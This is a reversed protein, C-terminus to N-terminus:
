GIRWHQSQNCEITLAPTRRDAPSRDCRDNRCIRDPNPHLKDGPGGTSSEPVYMAKMGGTAPDLTVADFDAVGDFLGGHRIFDNVKKREADQEPSGHNMNTSGLATTITAVIVPEAKRSGGSKGLDNIGEFWIVHTVGAQSLVDRDLRALASPGGAFPEPPPYQAPSIVCNGGIGADVVVTPIRATKVRRSLVDTWRDDGNITTATGDTISDGFCVVAGTGAPASMEVADLFYWSTTSFPFAAESDDSARSGAGPPSVYSTTVAKAHWTMPGSTGVVHFSVSLKRGARLPDAPDRVFALAVPDSLVWKGPEATVSPKGGFTVPRNTAIFGRNWGFGRRATEDGDVFIDPPLGDTSVHVITGM